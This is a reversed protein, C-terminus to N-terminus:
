AFQAVSEQLLDYAIWLPVPILVIGGFTNGTDLVCESIAQCGTDPRILDRVPERSEYPWISLTDTRSGPVAVLGDEGRNIDVALFALLCADIRDTLEPPPPFRITNNSVEVV